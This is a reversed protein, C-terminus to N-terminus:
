SRDGLSARWEEFNWAGDDEAYYAGAEFADRLLLDFKTM